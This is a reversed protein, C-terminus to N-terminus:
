LASFTLAVTSYSSFNLTMASLPIASLFRM